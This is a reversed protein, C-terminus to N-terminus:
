LQLSSNLDRLDILVESALQSLNRRIEPTRCQGLYNYITRWEQFLADAERRLETLTPQSDLMMNLREARRFFATAAATIATRDSPREANMWLIVEHDLQDALNALSAVVPTLRRTDVQSVTGGLRLQRRLDAIGDEIERLVVIAAQSRMTSFTRVFVAGYEEVYRYSDILQRDSENRDLNDKFNVVTGYFDDAVQLTSGANKFALLLKLPTRNYFEDVDRLLTETTQKLQARSTTNEIWLLENVRSDADIVRRISRAVNTNSVTRLQELMTAWSRKFNNYETVIREYPLNGIVLDEIRTIQQELRRANSILQANRTPNSMDRRLDEGMNYLATELLALQRQLERRDLTPEIQFLKGIQQDLRDIRDMSQRTATSLGVTQSMRHSYLRWDADLQRFDTVIFSLAVNAALDQNLQNARTRLRLLDTLMPRLNQNRRFDAELATYLRASEDLVEKMLTALQRRDVRSLDVESALPARSRLDDLSGIEGAPLRRSLDNQDLDTRSIRTSQGTAVSCLAAVLLTAAFARASAPKRTTPM